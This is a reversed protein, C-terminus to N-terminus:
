LTKGSEKGIVFSRVIIIVNIFCLTSRGPHETNSCFMWLPVGRVASTYKKRRCSNNKRVSKVAGAILVAPLAARHFEGVTNCYM